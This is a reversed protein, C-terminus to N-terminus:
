RAPSGDGYPDPNFNGGLGGGGYYTGAGNATQTQKTATGFLEGVVDEGGNADKILNSVGGAILTGGIVGGSGVELGIGAATELISGANRVTYKSANVVGTGVYKGAQLAERGTYIAGRGIAIGTYAAARGVASGAAGVAHVTASAASVLRKLQEAM